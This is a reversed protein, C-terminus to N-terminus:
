IYLKNKKCYDDLAWKIIAEIKTFIIVAQKDEERVTLSMMKIM